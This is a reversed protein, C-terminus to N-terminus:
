AEETESTILFYPDREAGLFKLSERPLADVVVGAINPGVRIRLEEGVIGKVIIVIEGPL